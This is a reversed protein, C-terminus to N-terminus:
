AGGLLLAGFAGVAYCVILAVTRLLAAIVTIPKEGRQFISYIALGAAIWAALVSLLTALLVPLFLIFLLVDRLREWLATPFISGLAVTGFIFVFTAAISGAFLAFSYRSARLSARAPGDVRLTTAIERQASALPRFLRVHLPLPRVRRAPTDQLHEVSDTMDAEQRRRALIASLEQIVPRLSDGTSLTLRKTGTDIVLMDILFPTRSEKFKIISVNGLPVRQLRSPKKPDKTTPFVLDEDTIGIYTTRNLESTPVGGLVDLLAMVLDVLSVGELWGTAGSLAIRLSEGPRLLPILVERASLEWNEHLGAMSPKKKAM